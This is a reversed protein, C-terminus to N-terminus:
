VCCITCDATCLTCPRTCVTCIATCDTNALTTAGGAAHKLDPDSLNRLTETNLSLKRFKKNM